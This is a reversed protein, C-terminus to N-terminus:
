NFRALAVNGATVSGFVRAISCYMSANVRAVKAADALAVGTRADPGADGAAIKGNSLNARRLAPRVPSTNACISFQDCVFTDRTSFLPM